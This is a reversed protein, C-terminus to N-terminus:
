LDEITKRFKNNFECNQQGKEWFEKAKETGYKIRIELLKKIVEETPVYDKHCYINFGLADSLTVYAFPM